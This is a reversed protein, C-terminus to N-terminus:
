FYSFGSGSIPRGEVQGEGSVRVGLSIPWSLISLQEVQQRLEGQLSKASPSLPVVTKGKWDQYHTVAISFLDDRERCKNEKM